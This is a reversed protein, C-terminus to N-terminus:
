PLIPPNHVQSRRLSAPLREEEREQPLCTALRKHLQSAHRSQIQDGIQVEYSVPGTRRMITGARWKTAGQYFRAFIPEGEAFEHMKGEKEYHAARREQKRSLDAHLDPRLLDFRTRLNRGFMMEAPSRGTVAHPTSRYDFLFKHMRGVLTLKSDSTVRRAHKFTQVFREAEGNTQPHYPAGTVHRIANRIMFTKWELARFQPGNDTVIVEPLGFMAFLPTLKNVVDGALTRKMPIVGAYKSFADIYILWMSGFMPGAFDLHLRRWPGNPLEWSHLPPKVPDKQLVACDPCNQVTEEIQKDIQPWWVYQRAAAKM